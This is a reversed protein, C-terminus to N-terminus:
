RPLDFIDANDYWDYIWTSTVTSDDTAAPVKKFIRSSTNAKFYVIHTGVRRLSSGAVEIRRQFVDTLIPARKTGGTGFAQEGTLSNPLAAALVATSYIQDLLYAGTRRLKIYPEERRALSDQGETTTDDSAYIDDPEDPEHWKSKPDFGREDRGVMTEALHQAGCVRKNSADTDTVMASDPYNDYEERFLELGIEINRFMSKQEINKAIRKVHRMGPVLIGVLVAIIGIVVLLEILTFGRGIDSRKHYKLM